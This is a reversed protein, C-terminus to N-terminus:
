TYIRMSIMEEMRNTQGVTKISLKV